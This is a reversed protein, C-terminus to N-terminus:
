FLYHFEIGYTRPRGPVALRLNGHAFDARAVGHLIEEDGANKLYGILRM